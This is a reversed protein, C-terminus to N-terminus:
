WWKWVKVMGKWEWVKLKAGLDTCKNVSSANFTAPLVVMMGHQVM